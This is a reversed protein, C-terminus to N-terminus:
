KVLLGVAIGFLLTGGLELLAKAVFSGTSADSDRAFKLLLGAYVTLGGFLLLTGVLHLLGAVVAVITFILVGIAPLSGVALRRWYTATREGRAVRGALAERSQDAVDARVQEAAVRLEAKREVRAITDDLNAQGRALRTTARVQRRQVVASIKKENSPDDADAEAFLGLLDLQLAARSDEITAPGGNDILRQSLAVADEVTYAAAIGFFSERITSEAVMEAVKSQEAPDDTCVAALYLLWSEPSIEIPVAGPVMEKYIRGPLAGRSIFYATTAGRDSRWRHVMAISNGDAACNARSRHRTGRRTREYLENALETSLRISEADNNASPRVNVGVDFLRRRIDRNRLAFAHWELRADEELALLYNRAFPNSLLRTNAGLDAAHLSGIEAEAAEFLRTWEQLVHEPVVVEVGAVLTARIMSEVVRREVSWSPASLGVLVSTDVVIQHGIVQPQAPLDRRTAFGHLIMGVTLLRVVDNGFSDDPDVTAVAVEVAVDRLSRPETRQRVLSVVRQVDLSLPRIRDSALSMGDVEYLDRMSEALSSVVVRTIKEAQAAHVRDDPCADLLEGVQRSFETLVHIGANHDAQAILRAPETLRWRDVGELDQAVSAINAERAIHLAREILPESISTSRWLAQSASTLQAVSRDTTLYLLEVVGSVLVDHQFARREPDLAARVAAFLEEALSDDVVPPSSFGAEPLGTGENSLQSM